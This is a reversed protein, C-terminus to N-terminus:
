TVKKPSAATRVALRRTVSSGSRRRMARRGCTPGRELGWGPEVRRRASELLLEREHLRAPLDLLTDVSSVDIGEPVPYRTRTSATTSLLWEKQNEPRRALGAFWVGLSTWEGTKLADQGCVRWADSERGVTGRCGELRAVERM